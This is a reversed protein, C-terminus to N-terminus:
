SKGQIRCRNEEHDWSSPVGVLDIHNSFFHKPIDLNYSLLVSVQYLRLFCYFPNNGFISLVKTQEVIPATAVAAASLVLCESSREKADHGIDTQAEEANVETQENAMVPAEEMTVDAPEVEIEANIDAEAENSVKEVNGPSQTGGINRRRRIAEKLLGESEAESRHNNQRRRSVSRGSLSTDSDDSVASQSDKEDAITEAEEEIVPNKNLNPSVDEVDFFHAVFSTAFQRIKSSDNHSIGTQRDLYSYILRTVDSFLSKDPFSFRFQHSAIGSPKVSPISKSRLRQETQERKLAEVETILARATISKRDISKFNIGLYDL